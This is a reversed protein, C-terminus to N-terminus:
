DGYIDGSQLAEKIAAETNPGPIGDALLGSQSQFAVLSGKSFPGWIGDVKLNYDMITNLSTQVWKYFDPTGRRPIGGMEWSTTVTGPLLPPLIQPVVGGPPRAQAKPGLQSAILFIAALLLLPGM